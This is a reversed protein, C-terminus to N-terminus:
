IVAKLKAPTEDPEVFEVTVDIGQKKMLRAVESTRTKLTVIYGETYYYCALAVIAISRSKLKDDANIKVLVTELDRNLKRTTLWGKVSFITTLALKAEESDDSLKELERICFDPVVVPTAMCNQLSVMLASTETITIVKEMQDKPTVSKKNNCVKKGKNKNAEKNLKLKEEVRKYIIPHSALSTKVKQTTLGLEEALQKWNTATGNAVAKQISKVDKEIQYNDRKTM